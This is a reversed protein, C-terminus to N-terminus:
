TAVPRYDHGSSLVALAIRALTNAVAVVTFDKPARSDLADLWASRRLNKKVLVKSEAGLAVRNITTKGVKKVM